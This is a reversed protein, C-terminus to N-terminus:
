AADGTIRRHYAARASPDAGSAVRDLRLARTIGFRARDPLPALAKLALGLSRPVAVRARPTGTVAVIASAVDEPTGCAMRRAWGPVSAGRSLETDIVGPLVTTVHIGEDRLERHLAETFGVVFHKTGCYTALGAEGSVGALSAINILHGRRRSRFRAVALRSGTLVGHVNVEVQRATMSPTEDAFSGTPMIGANNVLVDLPGLDAEVRDLFAAFSAPDTVDLPFGAVGLEAAAAATGDLDGIAVRAGAARFAAATARGIGRAAGTVAVVSGRASFKTM